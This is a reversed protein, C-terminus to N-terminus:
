TYYIERKTTDIATVAIKNAIIKNVEPRRIRGGRVRSVVKNSGAKIQDKHKRGENVIIGAAALVGSVMVGKKM